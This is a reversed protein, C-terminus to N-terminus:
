ERGDQSPVWGSASVTFCTQHKTPMVSNFVGEVKSCKKNRSYTVTSFFPNYTLSWLCIPDTKGFRCTFVVITFGSLIIM